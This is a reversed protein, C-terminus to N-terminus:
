YAPHKSTGARKVQSSVASVADFSAVVRDGLAHGKKELAYLATAIKTISAPYLSLHANKEYLIAGTEANLLVAAKASVEVKLPSGAQLASCLVFTYFCIWKFLSPYTQVEKRFVFFAMKNEIAKCASSQTEKISGQLVKRVMKTSKPVDM